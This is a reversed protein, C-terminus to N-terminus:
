GEADELEAEEDLRWQRCRAPTREINSAIARDMAREMAAIRRQEPAREPLKEMEQDFVILGDPAVLEIGFTVEGTAPDVAPNPYVRWMARDNLYNRRRWWLWWYASVLYHWPLLKKLGWMLWIVGAAVWAVGILTNM